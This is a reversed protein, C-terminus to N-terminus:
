PPLCRQMELVAQLKAVTQTLTYLEYNQQVSLGSILDRNLRVDAQVCKTVAVNDKAILLNKKQQNDLAAIKDIQLTGLLM